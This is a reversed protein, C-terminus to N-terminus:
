YIRDELKVEVTPHNKFYNNFADHVNLGIPYSANKLGRIKGHRSKTFFKEPNAIKYGETPSIAEGTEDLTIYKCLEAGMKGNQYAKLLEKKDIKIGSYHFLPNRETDIQNFLFNDLVLQSIERGSLETVYIEGQNYNIGDLCSSVEFPSVTPQDGVQFGNRISSANLAFIQVSDDVQKISDLIGDVVFNALYNNQSRINRTSLEKVDPNKVKLTYIKKLDKKFLEKYFRGIDGEEYEEDHPNKQSIFMTKAAGDDNINIKANVLKNFNQNMGIIPIGNVIKTDDKHEHGDFIINIGGDEALLDAFGVGTHCTLIVVGNPYEEKFNDIKGRIIKRTQEFQEPKVMKQATNTNEILNIGDLDSQYYSLNVPAIGLNLIAYEKTEDKDDTVFSIKSSVVKGEDIAEEFLPSNEFDLNSCVVDMDIDRITEGFLKAGGDFEHNGPVFLTKTEPFKERIKSLFKNLMQSQFKILPKTPASLFGNKAGSIFWDGGIILFNIKGDEEKEFFDNKDSLLSQCAVDVSPLNGHTDSLATINVTAGKFPIFNKIPTIQM